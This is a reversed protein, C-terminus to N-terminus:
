FIYYKKGAQKIKYLHGNLCVVYMDAHVACIECPHDINLGMYHKYSNRLLPILRVVLVSSLIHFDSTIILVHLYSQSSDHNLIWIFAPLFLLASSQWDCGYEKPECNCNMPSMCNILSSILSTAPVIVKRLGTKNKNNETTQRDSALSRLWRTHQWLAKLMRSLLQGTLEFCVFM